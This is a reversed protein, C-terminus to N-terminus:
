PYAETCFDGSSVLSCTVTVGGGGMVLILTCKTRSLIGVCFYMNVLSHDGRSPVMIMMLLIGNPHHPRKCIGQCFFLGQIM